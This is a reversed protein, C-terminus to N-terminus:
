SGVTTVCGCGDKEYGRRGCDAIGLFWVLFSFVARRPTTRNKYLDVLLNICDARAPPRLLLLYKIGAFGLKIREPDLCLVGLKIVMGGTLLPLDGLFRLFIKSDKMEIFPLINDLIRMAWKGYVGEGKMAGGELNGQLTLKDNYWEETLWAIILDMHERFNSMIYEFLRERLLNSLPGEDRSPGSLARASLRTLLVTWAEKDWEVIALSELGPTKGTPLGARQVSELTRLSQLIREVSAQFESKLRIPSLREPHPLQFSTLALSDLDPHIQAGEGQEDDATTPDLPVAEPDYDDYDGNIDDV